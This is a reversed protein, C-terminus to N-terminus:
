RQALPRQRCVQIGANLDGVKNGGRRGRWEVTTIDFGPSMRDPIVVVGGGWGVAGGWGGGLM